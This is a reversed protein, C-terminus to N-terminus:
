TSALTVEKRLTRQALKWGLKKIRSLGQAKSCAGWTQIPLM